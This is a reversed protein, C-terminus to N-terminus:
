LTADWWNGSKTALELHLHLINDKNHLTYWRQCLWFVARNKTYPLLCAEWCSLIVLTYFWISQCLYGKAKFFFGVSLWKEEMRWRGSIIESGTSCHPGWYRPGSDRPGPFSALLLLHGRLRILGAPQGHPWCHYRCYCSFVPGMMWWGWFYIFFFKLRFASVSMNRFMEALDGWRGLICMSM